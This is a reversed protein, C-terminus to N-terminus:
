RRGAKTPTGSIVQAHNLASVLAVGGIINGILAPILYGGLYSWWPQVGTTVQFLVEVSGAIVNTLGPLGVVYTPDRHDICQGDPVRGAALGGDRDAM